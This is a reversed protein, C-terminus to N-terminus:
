LRQELQSTEATDSLLSQQSAQLLSPIEEVNAPPLIYQTSAALANMLYWLIRIKVKPTQTKTTIIKAKRPM